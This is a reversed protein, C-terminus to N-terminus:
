AAPAYDSQRLERQGLEVVRVARQGSVAHTEHCGHHFGPVAEIWTGVGPLYRDLLRALHHKSLFGGGQDHDDHRKGTSRTSKARRPTRENAPADREGGDAPAPAGSSSSAPLYPSNHADGYALWSLLVFLLVSLLGAITRAHRRLTPRITTM